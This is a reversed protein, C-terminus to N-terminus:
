GRHEVEDRLSEPGVDVHWVVGCVSAGAFCFVDEFLGCEGAVSPVALTVSRGEEQGFM